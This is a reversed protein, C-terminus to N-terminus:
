QDSAIIGVGNNESSSERRRLEEGEAAAQLSQQQDEEDDIEIMEIDSTESLESEHQKIEDGSDDEADDDNM